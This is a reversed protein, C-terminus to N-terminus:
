DGSDGDGIQEARMDRRTHYPLRIESVVGAGEADRVTLRGEEGYLQELRERTNRIGVGGGNEGEDGLGPGNDRITVILHEDDRWAEVRLTAAGAKRGVGHELANEAIPQLILNPLLADLARPEVEIEIDLKGQFRVLMIDLYRRLLAIEERLTVEEGGRSDITHRLLESLRAIMRRVGAADREVLASIAHLTNFLFHPNIQMRLADLRAQALQAELHAARAELGAAERQRQQDRQFYERAIGAALVALYVILQNLFRFRGIARLPTFTPARRHRMPFFEVRILDLIMDVGIAIVIGVALVLPIRHFWNSREVSFRSGLVFILPTLLAWIGAEIFPFAVSAVPSVTRFGGMGRPDVMRNVATLSALSMWFAFILLLERGSFNWRSREREM